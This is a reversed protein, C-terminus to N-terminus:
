KAFELDCNTLQGIIWQKLQGHRGMLEGSPDMPILKVVLKFLKDPQKYSESHRELLTWRDMLIKVAWMKKDKDDISGVLETLLDWEQVDGNGMRPLFPDLNEGVRDVIKQLVNRGM